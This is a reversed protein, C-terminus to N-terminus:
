QCTPQPVDFNELNLNSPPAPLVAYEGTFPTIRSPRGETGASAGMYAIPDAPSVNVRRALGNM